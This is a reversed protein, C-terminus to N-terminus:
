SKSKKPGKKKVPRNGKKASRPQNSDGANSQAAGKDPSINSSSAQQQLELGSADQAQGGAGLQQGGIM